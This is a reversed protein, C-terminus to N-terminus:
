RTSRNDNIAADICVSAPVVAGEVCVFDLLSEHFAGGLPIFAIGADKRARAWVEDETPWEDWVLADTRPGVLAPPEDITTITITM